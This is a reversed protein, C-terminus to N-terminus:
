GMNRSHDLMRAVSETHVKWAVEYPDTTIPVVQVRPDGWAIADELPLVHISAEPPDLSPRVWVDVRHGRDGERPVLTAYGLQDLAWAIEAAVARSDIM